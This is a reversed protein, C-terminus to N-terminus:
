CWLCTLLRLSITKSEARHELKEMISLQTQPTSQKYDESVTFMSSLYVMGVNRVWLFLSIFFTWHKLISFKDYNTTCCYLALVVSLIIIQVFSHCHRFISLVAYEMQLNINNKIPM